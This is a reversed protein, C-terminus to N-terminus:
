GGVNAFGAGADLGNTLLALEENVMGTLRGRLIRGKWSEDWPIVAKVYERTYGALYETGDATVKEEMLVEKEEGLFSRRYALSAERNLKLLRDCRRKKVAEEVQDPMAAARTGERRSYPFVHLEYLGIQRLFSITQEFEEETEGPFGAIVDTTIAPRDFASRLLACGAAYEATTYHRNMRRLTADCGSQLSLHFHPCISDLAAIRRVFDETVIRPELSGLRLRWLGKVRDLMELLEILEVREEEPMDTGYSSIHIGTVVIERYGAQTLTEAEKLIEVASRSRVRGRAYPIICYSCFQNCGDQIKLFARTHGDPASVSIAEYERTKGIDLVYPHAAPAHAPQAAARPQEEAVEQAACAAAGVGTQAAVGAGEQACVGTQAAVGAKANCAPKQKGAFYEELIGVLDKKRNNGILIDVAGDKQLSDAAVQVYCGAAVVVADPNRKRARHLMQRSKRDAINTVSCTNIVYVDAKEEFPVIEYGAEKLLRGMAETEYANVKCGLNHLAAKRM